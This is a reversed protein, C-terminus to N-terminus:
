PCKLYFTQQLIFYPHKIRIILPHCPINGPIISQNPVSRKLFAPVRYEFYGQDGDKTYNINKAVASSHHEASRFLSTWNLKHSIYTLLIKFLKYWVINNVIHLNSFNAPPTTAIIMCLPYLLHSEAQQSKAKALGFGM